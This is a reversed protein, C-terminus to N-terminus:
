SPISAIWASCPRFSPRARRSSSGFTFSRRARGSHELIKQTYSPKGTGTLYPSAAGQETMWAHVDGTRAPNFGQPFDQLAEDIRGDIQAIAQEAYDQDVRIGKVRM